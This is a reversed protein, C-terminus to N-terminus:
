KSSEFMDAGVQVMLSFYQRLHFLFMEIKKNSKNVFKVEAYYGILSALNTANDKSFFLFDSTTPAPIDTSHDVLITGGTSTRTIATVAGMKSMGQYDSSAQESGGQSTTPTYYIIDGVQASRNINHTFTLTVTPM